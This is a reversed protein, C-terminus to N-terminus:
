AVLDFRDIRAEADFQHAESCREGLRQHWLLGNRRQDFFRLGIDGAQDVREGIADAFAPEIAESWEGAIHGLARDLADRRGSWDGAFCPWVM